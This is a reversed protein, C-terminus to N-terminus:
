KELQQKIEPLLFVKEQKELEKLGKKSLAQNTFPIIFENFLDELKQKRVCEDILLNLNLFEKFELPEGRFVDGTDKILEKSIIYKKGFVGQVYIKIMLQHYNGLKSKQLDLLVICERGEKFWGNFKKEFSHRKSIEGFMKKLDYSEM